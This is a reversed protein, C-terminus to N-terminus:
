DDPESGVGCRGGDSEGQRRIRDTKGNSTAMSPFWNGPSSVRARRPLSCRWAPSIRRSCRPGCRSTDLFRQELAEMTTDEAKAKQGLISRMRASDVFGPRIANVRIGLPGLEKAAARTLGELAWKSAVYDARGAPLTFVSGTSINIIAGTGRATMDPLVARLMFFVGHVNVDFSRIWDAASIDAIPACAGAIGANNVLVDVRGHLRVVEAM